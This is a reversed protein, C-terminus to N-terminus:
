PEGPLRRTALPDHDASLWQDPWKGALREIAAKLSAQDGPYPQYDYRSRPSGLMRCVQRVSYQHSLM